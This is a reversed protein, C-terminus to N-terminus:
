ENVRKILLVMMENDTPSFVEKKVINLSCFLESDICDLFHRATNLTCQKVNKM